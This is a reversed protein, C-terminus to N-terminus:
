LGANKSPKSEPTGAELLHLPGSPRFGLFAVSVLVQLLLFLSSQRGGPVERFLIGLDDNRSVDTELGVPPEPKSIYVTSLRVVQGPIKWFGYPSAPNPSLCRSSWPTQLGSRWRAAELLPAKAVPASYPHLLRLTGM